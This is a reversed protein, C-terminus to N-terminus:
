IGPCFRYVAFSLDEIQPGRSQKGIAMAARREEGELRGKNKECNETQIEQRNGPMKVQEKYRYSSRRGLCLLTIPSRRSPLRRAVAAMKQHTAGDLDVRNACVDRRRARQSESGRQCKVHHPLLCIEPERRQKEQEEPEDTKRRRNTRCISTHETKRRTERERKHQIRMSKAKESNAPAPGAEDIKQGRNRTKNMPMTKEVNQRKLKQNWTRTSTQNIQVRTDGRRNRWNSQTNQTRVIKNKMEENRQNNCVAIEENKRGGGLNWPQM